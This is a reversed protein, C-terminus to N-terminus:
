KLRFSNMIREATEKHMAFETPDCSFTLVYAKGNEFWLHMIYILEYYMRQETAITRYFDRGNASQWGSQIVRWGWSKRSERFIEILRDRPIDMGRFDYILLGIYDRFMDDSSTFPSIVRIGEWIQGETKLEWSIPYSISYEDDDFSVWHSQM